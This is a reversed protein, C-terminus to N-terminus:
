HQVVHGPQTWTLAGELENDYVKRRHEAKPGFNLLLGVDVTIAKLYNLLQAEHEDLLHRVAKLELIVAGNVLIDACYEGVNNDEDYVTISKQQEVQLGAKKLEIALSNEYIKESFGYGLTNYVKFFVGIVKETVDSQKSEFM